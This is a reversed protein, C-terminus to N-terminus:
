TYIRNLRKINEEKTFISNDKWNEIDIVKGNKYIIRM